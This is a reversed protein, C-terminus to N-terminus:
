HTNCSTKGLKALYSQHYDEAKFFSSAKTIETVIKGSVKGSTQLAQKSTTAIAQQKLNHFYIASRYQTGYDPGQRNLTTPDHINWFTEVLKEYSIKSPDFIVEVAEAHGTKGSCVDKYSPKNPNGGTYGVSTKIVGDLQQFASEVGWFCGAAFTAKEANAPVKADAKALINEIIKSDQAETRNDCGLITVGAIATVYALSMMSHKTFKKM